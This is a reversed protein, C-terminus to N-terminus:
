TLKGAQLNVHIPHYFSSLIKAIAPKSVASQWERTMHAKYSRHVDPYFALWAHRYVLINPQYTISRISSIQTHFMDAISSSTYIVAGIATPRNAPLATPLGAKIIRQPLFLAENGNIVSPPPFCALWM